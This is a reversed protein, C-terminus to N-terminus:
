DQWGQGLGGRLGVAVGVGWGLEGMLGVWVGWSGWSGWSGLAGVGVERGRRSRRSDLCRPLAVEVGEVHLGALRHAEVPVLAEVEGLFRLSWRGAVRAAKPPTPSSRTERNLFPVFCTPAVLDM